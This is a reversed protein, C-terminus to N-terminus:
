GVGPNNFWHILHAIPLITSQPGPRGAFEGGMVLKSGVRIVSSRDEPKQSGKRSGYLLRRDGREFNFRPEIIIADAPIGSGQEAADLRLVMHLTQTEFDLGHLVIELYWGEHRPGRLDWEECWARTMQTNGSRYQERPPMQERGTCYPCTPNRFPHVLRLGNAPQGSM